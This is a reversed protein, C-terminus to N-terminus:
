CEANRRRTHLLPCMSVQQGGALLVARAGLTVSGLSM